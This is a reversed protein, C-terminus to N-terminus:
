AAALAPQAVSGWPITAGLRTAVDMASRLGDEHFGYGQWAGAFWTRQQGQLAPLWGQAEVALQDFVPHAYEIRRIVHADRPADFPNLSVVVPQRFPLPQLKNILYSVAVPTHGAEAEAVGAAYNWASWVARRRPLLRADTHLWAVNAQYRVAGLIATEARSARAGLLDLAQDSHCALVVGDFDESGIDTHIRVGGAARILRRVPTAIRVDDLDAVMRAVYQKGGGRVTLWQPRDNIQLLGHNLCFQAFTRVPYGLMTRTPCSWIAAAMPLLYWHRFSDSYGHADLYDGLSGHDSQRDAVLATAERNFRMIDVVMRWFAPRLANRPQGFLAALSTGSWELDPRQLSVSFSMESAVSAVGLREFLACLNPYTQRNFVLFGTDVPARQGDLAVEVTNTHGGVYDAAEFLTVRHTNRLLWATALGSIGGGIVAIRQGPPPAFRQSETMDM